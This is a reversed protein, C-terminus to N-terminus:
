GPAVEHKEVLCVPTPPTVMTAKSLEQLKLVHLLRLEHKKQPLNTMHITNARTASFNTACSTAEETDKKALSYVCCLPFVYQMFSGNHLISPLIEFTRFSVASTTGSWLSIVLIYQPHKLLPQPLIAGYRCGPLVALSSAICFGLCYFPGLRSPIYTPFSNIELLASLVRRVGNILLIVLVSHTTYGPGVASFGLVRIYSKQFTFLLHFGRDM